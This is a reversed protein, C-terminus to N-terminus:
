KRLRVRKLLADYRPDSRINDWREDAIFYTFGISRDELAKNLWEFAKDKDGLRAYLGAIWFARVDGTKGRDLLYQLEERWIGEIGSQAYIKKLRALEDPADWWGEELSKEYMGRAEYLRGLTQHAVGFNPDLELTKLLQKEAEDYRRALCLIDGVNENIILSLPDLEQAKKAEAVAEDLRGVIPLFLSYRHHATPYRPNLEIALKFENEASAWDWEHVAKIMAITVHAEALKPDIQLAKNAATKSQPFAEAPPMLRYWGMTFWSDALGAYALAYSPDLQIAQNFYDVSKTLGDNTRKNWHFRGKLYLDYAEPSDTYHKAMQGQEVSSLKLRLNSSIKQAIERQVTLLDSLKREYQEGWIQKNDRADILETSITLNEGRQLIRGTLIARVGLEKAV